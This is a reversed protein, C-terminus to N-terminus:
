TYVTKKLSRCIKNCVKIIVLKYKKTIMYYSAALLKIKLNGHGYMSLYEIFLYQTSKDSFKENKVIPHIKNKQKIRQGGEGSYTQDPIIFPIETKKRFVYGLQEEMEYPIYSFYKNRVFEQITKKLENNYPIVNQTYLQPSAITWYLNMDYDNALALHEFFLPQYNFFGHNLAGQFPVVGIMLGNINCLDHMNKFVNGQNCIHETTGFNTVLDFKEHFDYDKALDKNMDFVHANNHGNTDISEYQTIGIKQYMHKPLMDKALLKEENSLARTRKPTDHPFDLVFSIHSENLDQGGIEIVSNVGDLEGHQHLISLTSTAPGGIGM